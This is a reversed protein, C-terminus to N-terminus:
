LSVVSLLSMGEIIGMIDFYSEIPKNETQPQDKTKTWDKKYARDRQLMAGISANNARKKGPM